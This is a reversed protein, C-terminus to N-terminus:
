QQLSYPKLALQLKDITDNKQYITIVYAKAVEDATSDKTIKTIEYIPEVVVAAKPPDKFVTVPVEVIRDVYVLKEACGILFLMCAMSILVIKM